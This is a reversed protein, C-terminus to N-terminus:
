EQFSCSFCGVVMRVAAMETAQLMVTMHFLFM